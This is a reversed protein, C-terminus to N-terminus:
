WRRQQGHGMQQMQQQQLQQIQYRIAEAEM